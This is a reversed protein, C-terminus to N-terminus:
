NGGLEAERTKRAKLVKYRWRAWGSTYYVYYGALLGFAALKLPSQAVQAASRPV